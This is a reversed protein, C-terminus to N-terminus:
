DNTSGKSSDSIIKQLMQNTEEESMREDKSKSKAYAEFFEKNEKELENWVAYNIILLKIYLIKKSIYGNLTRIYHPEYIHSHYIYINTPV